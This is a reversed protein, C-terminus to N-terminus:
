CPRMGLSPLMIQLSGEVTQHCLIPVKCLDSESYFMPQIPLPSTSVLPLLWSVPAIIWTLSSSTGCQAHVEERLSGRSVEWGSCWGSGLMAPSGVWPPAAPARCLHGQGPPCTAPSTCGSSQSGDMLEQHPSMGVLSPLAGKGWRCLSSLHALSPGAWMLRGDLCKLSGRVTDHNDGGRHKSYKTEEALFVRQSM